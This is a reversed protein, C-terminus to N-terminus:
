HLSVLSVGQHVMDWVLSAREINCFVGNVTPTSQFKKRVVLKKIYAQQCEEPTYEYFKHTNEYGPNEDMYQIERAMMKKRRKM